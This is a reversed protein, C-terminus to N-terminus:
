FPIDDDGGMPGGGAAPLDEPAVTKSGSEPGLNPQAPPTPKILQELKEIRERLWTLTEDHSDVRVRLEDVSKGLGGSGGGSRPKSLTYSVGHKESEYRTVGYEVLANLDLQEFSRLKAEVPAGAEDVAFVEYITYEGKTNTGTYTPECSTVTLKRKKTAAM